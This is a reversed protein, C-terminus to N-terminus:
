DEPFWSEHSLDYESPDYYPVDDDYEPGNVTSYSPENLDVLDTIAQTKLDNKYEDFKKSYSNKHDGVDLYDSDLNQKVALDYGNKKSIDAIADMARKLNRHYIEDAKSLDTRITDDYTKMIAESTSQGAKLNLAIISQERQRKRDKLLAQVQQEALRAPNMLVPAARELEHMKDIIRDLRTIYTSIADDYAEPVIVADGASLIIGRVTEDIGSMRVMNLIPRLGPNELTNALLAAATPNTSLDPDNSLGTVMIAGSRGDDTKHAGLKQVLTSYSSGSILAALRAADESVSTDTLHDWVTTKFASLFATRQDPKSLDYDDALHTVVHRWLEVYTGAQKRLADAGDFRLMDSPDKGETISAYAQSQIQGLLALTRRAAKQGAEDADFMFVIKGEPGVMRRMIQAQQQTLATGSSAITNEFGAHQMAIVDFQGEVVFLTHDRHAQERAISACFLLDGKHYVENEKSNVYKRKIKEGEHYFVQRGVFGLVRGLIDCIPFMLRGRWPCYVSNDSNSEYVVGASLMDAVSHGKHKLYVVLLNGNEPAWGFLDHNDGADSSIGRKERIEHAKVLHDEPLQDYNTRFWEWTDSIISLLSSRRHDAEDEKPSSTIDLGLEEAMTKVAEPFTLGEKDMLYTFVDGSKGCGYCKWSNRTTSVSFSPTKEDHFPCLMVYRTSGSPKLDYGRREFFSVLDVREKIISKAESFSVSM